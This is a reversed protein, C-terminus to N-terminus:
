RAITLPKKWCVQLTILSKISPILVKDIVEYVIM